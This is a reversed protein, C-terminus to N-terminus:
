FVPLLKENKKNPHLMCPGGVMFTPDKEETITKPKSVNTYGESPANVYVGKCLFFPFVTLTVLPTCGGGFSGSGFLFSGVLGALVRRGAFGGCVM